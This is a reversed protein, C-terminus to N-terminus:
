ASCEHSCCPEARKAVLGVIRMLVGRVYDPAFMVDEWAFRLVLWGNVVMANYRQADRRLAVRDGHWGFSDAELVLALDVDVLDPRMSTGALRVQPRVCLGPVTSAILRLCSEFPNAAEGRAMAAIRRVKESGAGRVSMAVRRLTAPPVGHRLASDAVALAEDDPLTRLCQLLTLEVGTAVGDSIDEPAIVAYHIDAVARDRSSVRRNRPVTVHPRDPVLKVEWGHHLAASTHSLVGRLAHATAAATRVRPLAYRGRSLAVVEGRRLAGDVERRSTAEILVARTALGGLEALVAAVLM